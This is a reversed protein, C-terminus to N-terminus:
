HLKILMRGVKHAVLGNSTTLTEWVGAVDFGDEVKRMARSDFVRQSRMQLIGVATQLFTRDIYPEYLFFSDSDADTEPTPVATVGVALAQETVVSMGFVAGQNESAGGSDTLIGAVGRTRVITFPRLALIAASFGSFLVATSASAIATSTAAIALWLSERRMAGGRQIFGSKRSTRVNAM